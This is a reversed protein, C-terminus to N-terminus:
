NLESKNPSYGNILFVSIFTMLVRQIVKLDTGNVIMFKVIGTKIELITWM